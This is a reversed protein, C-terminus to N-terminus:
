ENVESFLNSAAETLRYYRSRGETRVSLYGTRRLDNFKQSLRSRGVQLRAQLAIDSPSVEREAAATLIQVDAESMMKLRTPDLPEDAEWRVKRFAHIGDIVKKANPFIPNPNMHPESLVSDKPNPTPIPTVNPAVYSPTSPTLSPDMWLQAGDRSIDPPRSTMPDITRMQPRAEMVPTSDPVNPQPVDGNPGKEEPGWDIVEIIETPPSPPALDMRTTTERMRDALGSIGSRRREPVDVPDITSPPETELFVFDSSPEFEIPESRIHADNEIAEDTTQNDFVPEINLSFQDSEESSMSEDYVEVPLEDELDLFEVSESEIEETELYLVKGDDFDIVEDHNAIHIEEPDFGIGGYPDDDMSEFLPRVGDDDISNTELNNSVIVDSSAPMVKSDALWADYGDDYADQPDSEVQVPLVTTSPFFPRSPEPRPGMRSSSSHPDEDSSPLPSPFSASHQMFPAPSNKDPFRLHALQLGCQHVIEKPNGGAYAHLRVIEDGRHLITENSVSNMRLDVLTRTEELSLPNLHHIKDFLPGISSPGLDHYQDDSLSVVTMVRMEKLAPVINQIISLLDSLPIYRYDFAILDLNGTRKELHRRLFDAASQPTPPIQFTNTFKAVAEHIVGTTGTEQNWINGIHRSDEPALCNLLSTRGSGSPGVILHASPKRHAMQDTIVSAIGQRGVLMSHQDHSLPRMVFPDSRVTPGTPLRTAGVMAAGDPRRYLCNM